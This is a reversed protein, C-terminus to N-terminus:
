DTRPRRLGRTAFWASKTSGSAETRRRPTTAAEYVTRLAGAGSTRRRTQWTPPQPSSSRSRGAIPTPEAETPSRCGPRPSLRALPLPRPHAPEPVHACTRGHTTVVPAGTRSAPAPKPRTGSTRSRSSARTPFQRAAVHGSPAPTNTDLDGALVLVPVDPLPTGAAFPRAAARDHPWELCSGVAEMQTATWAAASFPALARAGIAARARLYTTRRDAALRRLRFRSPVRPVAPRIM